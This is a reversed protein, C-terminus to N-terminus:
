APTGRLRAMGDRSGRAACRRWRRRVRLSCPRRGRDCECNNITHLGKKPGGNLVMSVFLDTDSGQPAATMDLPGQINPGAITSVPHGNPDLVILCGYSATASKGNTTPLSGVIM